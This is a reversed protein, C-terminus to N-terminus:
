AAVSELFNEQALNYTDQANQETSFVWLVLSDSTGARIEKVFYLVPFSTNVRDDGGQLTSYLTGRKIPYAAQYRTSERSVLETFFGASHEPISFERVPKQLPPVIPRDPM